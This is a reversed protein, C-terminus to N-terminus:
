KRGLMNQYMQNKEMMNKEWMKRLLPYNDDRNRHSTLRNKIEGSRWKPFRKEIFSKKNGYLSNYLRIYENLDDDFVNNYDDDIEDEEDELIGNYAKNLNNENLNKKLEHEKLEIEVTLSIGILCSFILLLSINKFM